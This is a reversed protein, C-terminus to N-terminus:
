QHTLCLMLPQLCRYVQSISALMCTLDGRMYCQMYMYMHLECVQKNCGNEYLLVSICKQLYALATTKRKLLMFAILSLLPKNKNPSIVLSSLLNMILPMHKTLEDWIRTWSFTVLDMSKGGFFSSQNNSSMYKMKKRVERSVAKDDGEWANIDALSCLLPFSCRVNRRVGRRSRPTKIIYTKAKPKYSLVM